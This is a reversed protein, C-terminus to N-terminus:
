RRAFRRVLARADGGDLPLLVAVFVVVVAAGAAVGLGIIAGVGSPLGGALWRVGNGAAAGFAAALLGAAAARTLGPMTAGTRRLVIVLVLGLVTLGVSTGLGLAAVRASEPLVAALIPMAVAASGWGLGFAIAAARQGSRAYLARSLLAALGYGLLGPAFAAIGWALGSPDAGASLFAAAPGAVGALLAVGLCSLLTVARATTALTQNYASLRGTAASEALAPYAATAAPVALVAWPLLFVTQAVTFVLATGDAGTGNALRLAVILALQQFAVTLLGSVALGKVDPHDIQWSPRLRLRLSRLPILLCGSLVVVGLTTGVALILVGTRTAQALDARAGDHAAFLAYATIVVVSSLLPAIVPWAFKRHAQLVGILVVGIGYLPIQVAFIRLMLAGTEYQEPTWDRGAVLRIVWDAGVAVLVALPILGALVWTLLASATRSVARVDGNAVAGALLPVVLAAMAGGAVIEFIINPIANASAYVSGLDTQGVSLTLVWTRAFGVVRSVVTLVAILTAARAIRSM